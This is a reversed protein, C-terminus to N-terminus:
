LDSTHRLVESVEVRVRVHAVASITPMNASAKALRVEAAVKRM